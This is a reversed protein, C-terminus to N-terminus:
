EPRIHKKRAEELNDRQEARAIGTQKKKGMISKRQPRRDKGGGERQLFNPQM